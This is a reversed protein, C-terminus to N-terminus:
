AHKSLYRHIIHPARMVVQMELEHAAADAEAQRQDKATVVMECWGEYRCRTRPFIIRPARVLVPLYIACRVNRECEWPACSSRWRAFTWSSAAGTQSFGHASCFVGKDGLSYQDHTYCHALVHFRAYRDFFIFPDECNGPNSRSDAGPGRSVLTPIPPAAAARARWAPQTGSPDLRHLSFTSDHCLVFLSRNPHFAATPNNCSGVAFGTTNWPGDVSASAFLQFDGSGRIHFLLFTGSDEDFLIQPNTTPPPSVM